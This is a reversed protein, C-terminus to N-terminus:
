YQSPIKIKLDYHYYKKRVSRIFAYQYETLSLMIITIYRNGAAVFVHWATQHRSNTVVTWSNNNVPTGDLGSYSLHVTRGHARCLAALDVYRVGKFRETQM